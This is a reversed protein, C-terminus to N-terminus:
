SVQSVQGLSPTDGAPSHPNGLHAEGMGSPAGLTGGFCLFGLAGLLRM